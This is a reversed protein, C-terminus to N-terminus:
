VLALIIFSAVPITKIIKMLPLILEKIVSSKYSIVALLSGASVALVFGLVIRTFSFFITQWFDFSQVLVFLTKLVEAPSAVLIEQHILISLIEWLLLWFCIVATKKGYHMFRSRMVTNAM